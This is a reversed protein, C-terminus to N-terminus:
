PVAVTLSYIDAGGRNVQVLLSGDPAFGEFGCRVAGAQLIDEFSYYRRPSSAGPQFRFVPEGPALVDQFYLMSDESWVPVSILRGRAVESWRQTRLDFLKIVSDDKSVAALFHGDPSLRPEQTLGDSGPIFTTRGQRFDFFYLGADSPSPESAGQDLSFVMTQGDLFWDPFRRSPGPPLPQQPPGGEASVLYVTGKGGDKWSEFLIRKSDPSWRAGLIDPISPVGALQLRDSGDPRSRWLQNRNSYLMWQRDPSYAVEFVSVGPLVPKLQHSSPDFRVVDIQESLGGLVYIFHGDRSPLPSGFNIPGSTLQTPAPRLWPFRSSERLAWVSAPGGKSATFFYYSGDSTWRGNWASWGPLFPHLDRGTPTVQWLRPGDDNFRLIKGDPSWAIAGCDPLAALQRLGSGDRDAVFVGTSNTFAIMTGDPSFTAGNALIDGIRRPAGGILPMSWLPLNPIRSAFSVFLIESQDASVALVKANQPSSGFPISEGGAVSIQRDNWHDGERELFFLRSSDSAIGGWPDLRSSTTLRTVHTVRLPPPFAQRYLLWCAAGFVIGLVILRAGIWRRNSASPTPAPSDVQTAVSVLPQNSNGPPTPTPQAQHSGDTKLQAIQVPAIFRYGRRPITEIFIPNEASDGLAYRLKKVATNLGEDFDVFTGDPWLIARLEERSVVEGPHELLAVLIQFPQNELSVPLGKKLLREKSSDLEFQGFRAAAIPKSSDKVHACGVLARPLTGGILSM